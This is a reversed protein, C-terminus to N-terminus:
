EPVRCTCAFRQICVLGRKAHRHRYPTSRSRSLAIMQVSLAAFDEAFQEEPSPYTDTAILVKAATITQAIPGVAAPGTRGQGEASSWRGLYFAVFDCAISPLDM